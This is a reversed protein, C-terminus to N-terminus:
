SRLFFCRSSHLPPPSGVVVLRLIKLPIFIILYFCTHYLLLYNLNLPPFGSFHPTTDSIISGHMSFRKVLPCHIRFTNIFLLFELKELLLNRVKRAHTILKELFLNRVKRSSLKLSKQCYTELTKQYYTELKELM